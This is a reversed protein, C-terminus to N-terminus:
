RADQLYALLWRSRFPLLVSSDVVTCAFTALALLLVFYFYFVLKNQICPQRESFSEHAEKAVVFLDEGAGMVHLRIKEKKVEGVKMAIPM